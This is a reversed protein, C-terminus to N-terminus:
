VKPCPEADIVEQYTLTVEGGTDGDEFHFHFDPGVSTVYASVRMSFNPNASDVVDVQVKTGPQKKAARIATSTRGTYNLIFARQHDAM